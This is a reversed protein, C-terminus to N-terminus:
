KAEENYTEVCSSKKGCHTCTLRRTKPTHTAFFMKRFTPRFVGHCEPCIYATHDYYYKTLLAAGIIAAALGLAFPWWIGTEIGLVFTGVEVIELPIGVALMITHVKRLKNRNEMAHAIDGISEVSFQGMDRLGERLNALTRLKEQRESVEARLGKEQEAILLDIVKEPHEESLLTSINDISFDMGRLFCIIRMRRLDDDSYLRRGGETLESPVLIGRTDYYQVTRVTTGCLKAIEGTTYKSM